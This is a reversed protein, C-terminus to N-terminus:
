PVNMFFAAHGHPSDAAVDCCFENFHFRVTWMGPADFQVPGVTYTGPPGEVVQQNGDPPRSDITPGPHTSNLCVEAYTSAGTLPALGGGAATRTLYDATVVFYTGNNECLPSPTYTVYYKCDDDNGTTGYKTGGYAGDPGNEDCPGAVYFTFPPSAAGGPNTVVVSPTGSTALISAPITISLATASTYTTPVNTGDFSVTSGSVFGTGTVSVGTAAASGVDISPTASGGIATITPNEAVIVGGDGADETTTGADEGPAPGADDISCSTGSTTQTTAPSQNSTGGCHTDPPGSAPGGAGACSTTAPEAYKGGGNTTFSGPELTTCVAYPANGVPTTGPPTPDNNPPASSSSSSCAWILTCVGMGAIAGTVLNRQKIM